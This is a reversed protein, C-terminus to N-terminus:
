VQFSYGSQSVGLQGHGRPHVPAYVGPRAGPHRARAHERAGVNQYGSRGYGAILLHQIRDGGLRDLLQAAMDGLSSVALALSGVWLGTDRTADRLDGTNDTIYVYRTM